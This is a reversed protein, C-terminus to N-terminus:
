VSYRYRVILSFEKDTELMTEIAEIANRVAEDQTKGQTHVHLEECHALIWVGEGKELVLNYSTGHKGETNNVQQISMQATSESNGLQFAFQSLSKGIDKENILIQLSLDLVNTM